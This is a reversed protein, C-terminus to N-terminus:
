RRDSGRLARHCVSPRCSCAAASRDRDRRRWATLGMRRGGPSPAAFRRILPSCPYVVGRVRGEAVRERLSLSTRTVGRQAAAHESAANGQEIEGAFAGIVQQSQTGNAPEESSDLRAAVITGDEGTFGAVVRHAHRPRGIRDGAPQRERSLRSRPHLDSARWRHTAPSRNGDHGVRLRRQSHDRWVFRRRRRAAGSRAIPPASTNPLTM